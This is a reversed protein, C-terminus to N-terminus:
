REFALSMSKYRRTPEFGQKGYFEILGTWDIICRDVGRDRLYELACGLLAIGSGRGRQDKALGIAGLAGWKSGLNVHWVAGGIPAKNTYDQVLAFGDVRSGHFLGFVCSPGEIEVKNMTDYKWRYPFERDFFAALAPIDQTTMARMEDGPPVHCKNTYGILSRELDVVEGGESFGEVTLFGSLAAFDTPCGPFFHRSDQGFQLKSCGRNTLLTKVEAMLDIGYQPDCYAICSLHAVDQDPGPYLASASKKVSVFGLIEGDAVEIASSGWDFVPSNVTNLRLQEGDIWYKEPAFENWFGALRNFDADKFSRKM